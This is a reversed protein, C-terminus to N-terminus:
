CMTTSGSRENNRRKANRGRRKDAISQWYAEAEDEYARRARIYAEAAPSAAAQTEESQGQAFVPVAAGFLVAAM